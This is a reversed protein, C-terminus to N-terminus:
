TEELIRPGRRRNDDDGGSDYERRASPRSVPCHVRLCGGNERTASGTLAGCSCLVISRSFTMNLHGPSTAASARAMVTPSPGVEPLQRSISIMMANGACVSVKLVA